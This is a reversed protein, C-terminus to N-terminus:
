ASEHWEKVTKHHEKWADWASHAWKKALQTYEDLNLEKEKIAHLVDIARIDGLNEPAKLEPFEINKSLIMDMIKAIKLLEINKEFAAYLAILHVAVSQHSAAVLRQNIGLKQQYERHPPHQVAYADVILRNAAPYGFREREYNQLECYAYSCEPSAVGYRAIGVTQYQDIDKQIPFEARCGPCQRLNQKKM